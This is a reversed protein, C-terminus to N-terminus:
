RRSGGTNSFGGRSSSSSSATGGGFSGGGSGAHTGGTSGGCGYCDAPSANHSAQNTAPTPNPTTNAV